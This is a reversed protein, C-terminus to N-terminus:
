KSTSSERVPPTAPPTEKPSNNASHTDQNHTSTAAETPEAQRRHERLVREYLQQTAKAMADAHYRHLVAARGSSGFKEILAQDDVFPLVAAALADADEPKFLVGGGTDAIMEPFSGHEPQIVPVGNAMAELISLGKSERYITPVTMADLSQLFRIKGERDPEGHYEFLDGLGQKNIKREIDKLYKKEGAALYGAVHLRVPRSSLGANLKRFAEAAIHLGKEPCVRAFYGLVFHDPNARNALTRQGHGTLDLGHPVIAVRNPDLGMYNTMYDAYYRNMAVYCDADPAHQRLLERAHSYHPETMAELFIDEGSLGCVIAAGTQERIEKAMGLLLADSLHVIDPKFEKGLWAALRALEKRQHGHSGQLMSVTMDGLKAADVSFSRKSLWRMIPKSDFLADLFRPTYRFLSLKQQLYVNVGGMFVRPESVNEEDTRVPTYTPLLIIDEGRKQLAAALTNDHLCSGCYMGAAGAALYAIRM